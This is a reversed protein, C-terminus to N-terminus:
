RPSVRPFSGRNEPKEGVPMETLVQVRNCGALRVFVSWVKSSQLNTFQEGGPATALLLRRRIVHPGLLLSVERPAM